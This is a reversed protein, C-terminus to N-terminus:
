LSLSLSQSQSTRIGTKKAEQHGLSGAKSTTERQCQLSRRLVHIRDPFVPTIIDNGKRHPSSNVKFEDPAGRESSRQKRREAKVREVSSNWIGTSTRIGTKKAEQHGLSRAKSTTERQCQLSRRLVHIRDPFVPTIIDNGKRHPSSNAKFWDPAGRESSRQKGREAKVREVSSNWIGTGLDRESRSTKNHFM